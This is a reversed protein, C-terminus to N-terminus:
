IQCPITFSFRSGKGIESQVEIRGGHAEVLRKAITLGLGRGGTARARSKDVRYFREFINPLDEAPIGEGTDTVSVEVENGRKRAAVTIVGGKNTHVIANNVLNHLVQSIRQSDINCLPLDEEIDTTVSIGQAGAHVKAAEVTQNILKTIDQPQRVLVLEGAEAMTLEQLEEILKSLQSAEEYLLQITARDPKVMGDRIAELYGLINTVPTRLEHASDAIMNRRLQEAKELDRAMSNFTETLLGIEGKDKSVVRHSFDGKGLRKAALTLEQIPATIRRSLFFTLAVAIAIAALGGWLLYRNIAESLSQTIGVPTGEPNIYLIGITDPSPTPPSVEPPPSSPVFGPRLRMEFKSLPIGGSPHYNQKGLLVGQSDAIVIGNTDTLVIHLGEFSGIQEVWPQIDSWGGRMFYQHSLMAQIRNIRHQQSREEFLQIEHSASRHTFFSVTGITVLVVLIFALLLRFRLSHIM